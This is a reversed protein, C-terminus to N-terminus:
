FGACELALLNVIYGPSVDVWSNCLKNRCGDSALRHAIENCSRRVHRVLVGTFGHFLEKIEEVLPGSASYDKDTSKLKVVANLCDTELEVRDRGMEKALELARRCALLEAQEPDSM